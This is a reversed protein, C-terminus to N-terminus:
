DRYKPSFVSNQEQPAYNLVTEDYIFNLMVVAKNQNSLKIKPTAIANIEIDVL